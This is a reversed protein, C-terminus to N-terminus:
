IESWTLTNNQLCLAAALFYSSWLTEVQETIGPRTTYCAGYFLGYLPNGRAEHQLFYHSRIIAALQKQAQRKLIIGDPHCTALTFLAIVAIATASLDYQLIDAPQYPKGDAWTKLWYRCALYASDLYPQGWHLAARALGLMAWAQGRPWRGATDVPHWDGDKDQFAEPHFAGDATACTAVITDTHQRIHRASAPNETDLLAILSALSDVSVTTKGQAGGGMATGLPIARLTRSYCTNLANRATTRLTRAPTYDGPAGATGHWFILSRNVSDIYLKDELHQCLQIAHQRDETDQTFRARLWWLGSWFGGVWAGGRSVTWKDSIGPSYLPVGDPYRQKLVKIRTFLAELAHDCENDSLCDSAPPDPQQM